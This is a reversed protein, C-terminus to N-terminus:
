AGGRVREFLADWQALVAPLAYRQRVSQAARRGLDRRLEPDRMLRGLADRLADRQGAPVLLADRGGRTMEAPGSPCDFAACPLGLSMAELLVNPFGEVASSLVFADAKALEDWPAATRGPMHIRTVLGRAAVQAQLDDRRPGEGWIWLDWDPFEDALGAYADILLDFRKDPVMRGMAMLRKRAAPAAGSGAAPTADFLEPPLPNPIVCLQKLGPVQRAFPEVTADAQVTVMDALPYLVRRLVRWVRGISTDVVPNTRECVILPTKLGRTALIAAVNVNTLFSVVVDPARERVVARLARLRQWAAVAGGSRTGARDALWLLEVDDSLPYFCTGKSSYTPMLTIQDGRAAWGNALTAAVREAGGAHMSSVLLLIKM